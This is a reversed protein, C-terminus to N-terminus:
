FARQDEISRVAHFASWVADMITGSTDCDGVAMITDGGQLALGLANVPFMRGAFVLAEAPIEIKEQGRLAAVTGREFSEPIVGKHITINPHQIMRLLLSRNHMDVMTIDLEDADNRACLSVQKGQQALYLATECGIVGAGMMVLRDAQVEFGRLVDIVSCVNDGAVPPAEMCAGTALVVYDAGYSRVDEASARISYRLDVPLGKLLRRQWALYAAMDRKFPPLSAPILNGGASDGAEWLAVDFGREVGVRAAEIGAPGAGIILLKKKRHIPRLGWETEHGTMPNLACSTPEGAIMQWLCGEHCGICPRIDDFCERAAKNVWDPDSLLGRGLAIFDAKGGALAAEAVHPYQLKGVAIVPISVSQRVKEACDVLCGAPQYQPPHPWWGTEYCGADIHLASVGMDQLARAIRVGEEPERGGKLHHTLGFRYIIPFDQGAESRIAEIVERAFCLRNEFSGGYRDTRRNWLASMFQDMLYGEHGHLEVCDVGAERCCRAAPGFAAALAAAEETTLARSNYEPYDPVYFNPNASASVPAVQEEIVAAPIVRGFGATLQVSLKCGYTHLCDSLARLGPQQATDTPCFLQRAVPEFERSVFTMETTILGVGGRARAEYYARFREGWGGGPECLGRVGMAAMVIRNKLELSGIRGPELLKMTMARLIIKNAYLNNSDPFGILM